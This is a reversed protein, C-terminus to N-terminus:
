GKGKSRILTEESVSPLFRSITEQVHSYVVRNLAEPNINEIKDGMSLKSLLMLYSESRLAEVLLVHNAQILGGSPLDEGGIIKRSSRVEGTEKVEVEITISFKTTSM